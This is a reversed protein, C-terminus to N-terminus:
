LRPLGWLSNEFRPEMPTFGIPALNNITPSPLQWVQARGVCPRDPGFRLCSQASDCFLVAVLCVGSARHWRHVPKSVVFESFVVLKPGM